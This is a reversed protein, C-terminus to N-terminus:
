TEGADGHLGAAAVARLLCVEGQEGGSRGAIGVSGLVSGDATRVLIGGPIALFRGRSIAAMSEILGVRDALRDGQLRSSRQAAITTWAKAMAMDAYVFPALHDRRFALPHGGADLVAVAMPGHGDARAVNFAHEIIADAQALTLRHM